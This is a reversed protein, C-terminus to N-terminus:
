QGRRGFWGELYDAIDERGAHRAWDAPTAQWVKDKAQADAGGELLLSATERHAGFAAQHLPTSHAHFGAPNYRRPDEGAEILLRVVDAHGFQSALALARHRDLGNASDLLRRADEPMGLASAVVFDFRAGRRLLAHVADFEGHVLAAPVAQDPNAGHDCLLDILPLHQHCERPVRGSCVLALTENVAAADDKAGAELIITALAVINAPLRGKRVPNEAVFSLLAPNQFYSEGAFVTRQNVLSPCGDLYIRLEEEAGADLLRVAMRIRADQIREYPEPESAHM